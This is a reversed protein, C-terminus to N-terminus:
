ISIVPCPSQGIISYAHQGVFESLGDTSHRGTILLDAAFDGATRIVTDTPNGPATFIEAKIGKEHQLRGIAEKAEETVARRYAQELEGGFYGHPWPAPVHVIGLDAGYEGAFWGAWALVDRSHEGLDLACLVKRCHINELRPADEAHTSTWVPCLVDHLVKATVSGILLRRFAGVGHTPAIVLDVKERETLSRIMEAPEEGAMCINRTSFYRLDDRVFNNLQAQRHPLLESALNHEGSLVIHALILEAQFRGALAEAYRAAGACAPSFDVPFLIRTIQPM